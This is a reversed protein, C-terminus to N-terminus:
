ALQPYLGDYTFLVQNMETNSFNKVTTYSYCTGKRVVLLGFAPGDHM